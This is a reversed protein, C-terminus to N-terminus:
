IRRRRLVIRDTLRLMKAVQAVKIMEREFDIAARTNDEITRRFTNLVGRAIDYRFVQKLAKGLALDMKRVGGAATSAEKGLDKTSNAAAKLEKSAKAANKVDVNVSVNKLQKEIDSVVSKVNKPAKLQLEATLVFKQAM